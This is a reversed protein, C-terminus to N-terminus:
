TPRSRSGWAGAQGKSAALFSFSKQLVPGGLNGGFQNQVLPDRRISNPVRADLNDNRLYHFLTGHFSNTGGKTIINVAGASARGTEASFTGSLVRFEAISDVSVTNLVSRGSPDGFSPSEIFSADTGDM